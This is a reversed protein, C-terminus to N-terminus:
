PLRRTVGLSFAVDTTTRQHYLGESFGAEIAWGSDLSLRGGLRLYSQVPSYNPVGRILRSSWSSEALLHVRRWAFWEAAVFAHGRLPAYRFGDVDNDSQATAGLGTALDWRAGLRRGALLQLGAGLGHGAFPGSGTPLAARSVLSTTWPGRGLAVRTGLEVNGLGSGSEDWSRPGSVGNALVRYRDTEFSPRGGDPLHSWRHYWNILGDLSGAGRWMVPVRLELEVRPVLGRRLELDLTRQEGDVLYDRREPQEGAASQQWGFDSGWDVRARLQTRGPELVAALTPPLDLRPQALMWNERGGLPGGADQAAAPLALFM